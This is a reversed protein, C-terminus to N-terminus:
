TGTKAARVLDVGPSKPMVGNKSSSVSAVGPSNQNNQNINQLRAALRAQNKARIEALKANANALKTVTTTNKSDNQNSYRM